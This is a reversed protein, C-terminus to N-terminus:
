DDFGRCSTMRAHKKTGPYERCIAPKVGHIRCIWRKQRGEPGAPVLWPCVEAFRLTGPEVWAARSVARGRRTIVAVREMIDFRGMLKWRTYDADSIEHRYNLARCCAGCQRCRFGEMDMHLLIGAPKSARVGTVEAPIEFTRRCIEAMVGCAPPSKELADALMMGLGSVTISQMRAVRGARAPASIWLGRGRSDDAVRIDPGLILPCLEMFLRKQPPYQNFDTRIADIAEELSLFVREKGEVFAERRLFRAQALIRDPAM